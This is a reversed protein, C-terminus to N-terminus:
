RDVRSRVVGYADYRYREVPVGGSNTVAEVSWLANQHYYYDSGGRNMTLIEDIYNGYVYTAQTM